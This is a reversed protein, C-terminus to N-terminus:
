ESIREVPRNTWRTRGSRDVTYAWPKSQYTLAPVPVTVVVFATDFSSSITATGALKQFVYRAAIIGATAIKNPISTSPVAEEEALAETIYEARGYIMSVNGNPEIYFWLIAWRNNTMTTLTGANDYQTNPWQTASAAELGSASYTAFSGTISTDLAPILYSTRGLWLYGTTLTVNRTGTEGFILGSLRVGRVPVTSCGGAPVTAVVLALLILRRWKRNGKRLVTM